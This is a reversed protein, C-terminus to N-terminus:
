VMHPIPVNYGYPYQNDILFYFFILIIKQAFVAYIGMEYSM